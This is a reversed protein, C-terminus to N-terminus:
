FREDDGASARQSMRSRLGARFVEHLRLQTTPRCPDENPLLGLQELDIWAVAEREWVWDPCVLCALKGPHVEYRAADLLLHKERPYDGKRPRLDLAGGLYLLDAELYLADPTFHDIMAKAFLWSLLASRPAMRRELLERRQTSLPELLGRTDLVDVPPVRIHHERYEPDRRDWPDSSVEVIALRGPVIRVARLADLLRGAAVRAVIEVRPIVTPHHGGGRVIGVLDALSRGRQAWGACLSALEPADRDVQWAVGPEMRRRPPADELASLPATDDPDLTGEPDQDSMM